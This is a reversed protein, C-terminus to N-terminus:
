GIAADGDGIDGCNSLALTVGAATFSRM